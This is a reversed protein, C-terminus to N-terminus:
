AVERRPATAEALTPQPIVRQWEGGVACFIFLVGVPKWVMEECQDCRVLVLPTGDARQGSLIVTV